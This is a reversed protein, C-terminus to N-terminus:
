HKCGAPRTLGHSTRLAYSHLYQEQSDKSTLFVISHNETRFSLVPRSLLEICFLVSPVEQSLKLPVFVLSRRDQSVRWALFSLLPEQSIRVPRSLDQIKVVQLGCLTVELRLCAPLLTLSFFFLDQINQM